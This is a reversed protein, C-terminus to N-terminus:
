GPHDPCRRTRPSMGERGPEPETVAATLRARLRADHPRPVHTPQVFESGDPDTRQGPIGADAPFVHHRTANRVYTEELLLTQRAALEARVREWFEEDAAQAVEPEELDAAYLSATIPEAFLSFERTRAVAADCPQDSGIYLYQDWGVHV